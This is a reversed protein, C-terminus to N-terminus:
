KAAGPLSQMGQNRLRKMALGRAARMADSLPTVEATSVVWDYQTGAEYLSSGIVLGHPYFGMRSLTLFETVSLESLANAPRKTM